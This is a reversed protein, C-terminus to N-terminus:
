IWIMADVWSPDACVSQPVTIEAHNVFLEPGVKNCLYDLFSFKVLQVILRTALM